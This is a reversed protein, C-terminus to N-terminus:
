PIGGDFAGGDGPAGCGALTCRLPIAVLADGSDPFRIPRALADQYASGQAIVTGGFCRDDEAIRGNARRATAAVTFTSRRDGQSPTLVIDVTSALFPVSGEIFRLRLEARGDGDLDVTQVKLLLPNGGFGVSTEPPAGEASVLVLDLCPVDAPRLEAPLSLRLFLAPDPARRDAGCATLGLFGTLFLACYPKM